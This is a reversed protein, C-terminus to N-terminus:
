LKSLSKNCLSALDLSVFSLSNNSLYPSRVAM